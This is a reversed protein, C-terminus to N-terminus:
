LVSAPLFPVAAFLNESERCGLLCPLGGFPSWSDRQGSGVVKSGRGWCVSTNKCCALSWLATQLWSQELWLMLPVIKGTGLCGSGELESVPGAGPHWSIPSSVWPHNLLVPWLAHLQHLVPLPGSHYQPAPLAPSVEIDQGHTIICSCTCGRQM